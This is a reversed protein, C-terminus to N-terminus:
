PPAFRQKRRALSRPAMGRPSKIRGIGGAAAKASLAGPVLLCERNGTTLSAPTSFNVASLKQLSPFDSNFEVTRLQDFSWGAATRNLFALGRPRQHQPDLVGYPAKSLVLTEDRDLRHICAQIGEFECAMMVKQQSIFRPNHLIQFPISVPRQSKQILDPWLQQRGDARGRVFVIREGDPSFAPSLPPSTDKFSWLDVQEKTELNLQSLWSYGGEYRM